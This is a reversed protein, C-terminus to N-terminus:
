MSAVMVLCAELGHARPIRRESSPGIGAAKAMASATWHTTEGPPDASSLAVVRDIIAQALRPLRPAPTLRPWPVSIRPPSAM